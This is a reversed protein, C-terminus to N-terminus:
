SFVGPPVNLLLCDSSSCIVKSSEICLSSCIRNYSAWVEPPKSILTEDLLASCSIESIIFFLM